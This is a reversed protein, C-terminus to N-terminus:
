DEQLLKGGFVKQGGLSIYFGYIAMSLLIILALVFSSAYWATLKTTIPYFVWLHFVAFMAMLALPGFRVACFVFTMVSLAIGAIGIWHSQAIEPSVFLAILILTGVGIGLWERRLLLSLFLLLFVIMFAQAISATVQSIFMNAFAGTGAVGLKFTDMLDPIGQYVGLWRPLAVRFYMMAVWFSGFVAGILLDRGVLPDRFDGALLRNWSIIREPWRRRL